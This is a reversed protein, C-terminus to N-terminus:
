MRRFTKRQLSGTGGVVDEQEVKVKQELTLRGADVEKMLASVLAM